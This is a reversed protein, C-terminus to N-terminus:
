ADRRMCSSLEPEDTCELLGVHQAAEGHEAVDQGRTIAMALRREPTGEQGLPALAFTLQPVLRGRQDLGDPKAPSYIRLRIRQGATLQAQQLDRDREACTRPEQNEVLGRRPQVSM